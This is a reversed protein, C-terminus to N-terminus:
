PNAWYATDDRRSSISDSQLELGLRDALQRLVPGLPEAQVSLRKIRTREINAPPEATSKKPTPRPAALAKDNMATERVNEPMPVLEMRAGGSQIKFTLDFQVAILTLRDVLSMPPLDAAAWLDHPVQELGVIEVDYQRGLQALLDRPTSLDEWALAKAQIYRRQMNPPLRRVAENFAAAVPKLRRAASPPGLYIVAGLQSVGLGCQDAISQLVSEVSAGKLTLDLRQGPDVRRDILIAMHQAESLGAVARRLPNGSWLIDVPQSLRKQFAPGTAWAPHGAASALEAGIVGHLVIAAVIPSLIQSIKDM